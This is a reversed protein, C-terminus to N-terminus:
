AKNCTMGYTSGCDSSASNIQRLQTTAAGGTNAGYRACSAKNNALCNAASCDAIAAKDAVDDRGIAVVVAVVGNDDGDDDEDNVNCADTTVVVVDTLSDFAISIVETVSALVLVLSLALLRFSGSVLSVGEENDNVVV